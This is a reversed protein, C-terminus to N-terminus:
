VLREELKRAADRTLVVRVAELVDLANLDAALKVSVKPVNRSALLVNREPQATVFLTKRGEPSVHGLVEVFQRTKPEGMTLADL